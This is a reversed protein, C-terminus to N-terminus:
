AREQKRRKKEQRINSLLAPGKKFLLEPVSKFPPEYDKVEKMTLADVPCTTVCLGCGICRLPDHTHFTGGVKHARTNCREVCTGCNICKEHDIEPMFHPRAIMGPKNFQNLSRLMLCCCGCCSCSINSSFHRDDTNDMWTSLGYEEAQAKIDLAEKIGIRRMNGKKISDKALNGMAMCTEHPRGCYYDNFKATSTCQCLGVALYEYNELIAELKDTPLAAPNSRITQGAPIYRVFETPKDWYYSFEGANYLKIIYSSFKKHWDTLQAPDSKVLVLEFTGPLLPLINYRKSSEDEGFVLLSDQFSVISELVKRVDRESTDSLRALSGATRSSWPTLYQLVRAEDESYMHQILGVLDDSLPPGLLSPESYNEAVKIHSPSVGNFRRLNEPRPPEWWTKAASPIWLNASVAAGMVGAGKILGRRSIVPRDINISKNKNKGSTDKAM